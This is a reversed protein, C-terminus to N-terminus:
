ALDIQGNSWQLDFIGYFINSACFISKFLEESSWPRYRLTDNCMPRMDSLFAWITTMKHRRYLGKFAVTLFITLFPFIWFSKKRNKFKQDLGRIIDGEIHFLMQFLPNLLNQVGYSWIKRDSAERARQLSLLGNEALIWSKAVKKEFMSFRILPQRPSWILILFQYLVDWIVKWGMIM